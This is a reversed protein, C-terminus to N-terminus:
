LATAPFSMIGEGRQRDYASVSYVGPRDGAAADTFRNEDTMGILQYDKYVNYTYAGEVPEWSVATGSGDSEARVAGPMTLADGSLTLFGFQALKVTGGRRRNSLCVILPRDSDGTEGAVPIKHYGGKRVRTEYMQGQVRILYTESGDLSAGNGVNLNLIVSGSVGSPIHLRLQLELAEGEGESECYPFWGDGYRVVANALAYDCGDKLTCHDFRREWPIGDADSPALARACDVFLAVPDRYASARFILREDDMLANYQRVLAPDDTYRGNAWDQWNAIAPYVQWEWNIYQFGQIGYSTLMSMFDRMYTGFAYDPPVIAYSSEGIMVPKGRAAAQEMYWAADFNPTITNFSFWDVYRDGDATGTDPDDPYWDWMRRNDAIYTNWVYAVNDAGYASIRDVIRRYARKYAAPDYGNWEGDFEYGIRLFIPLKISKYVGAMEDILPDYGGEGIARLDGEDHIPLQLGIQLYAGPFVNHAELIDPNRWYGGRNLGEYLAILVPKRDEPVSRVMAAASEMCQGAGSYILGRGPEFKVADRGAALPRVAASVDNLNM